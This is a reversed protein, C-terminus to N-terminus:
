EFLKKKDYKKKTKKEVYELVEKELLPPACLPFIPNEILHFLLGSKGTAFHNLQTIVSSSDVVLEM